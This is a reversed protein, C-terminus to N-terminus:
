EGDRIGPGSSVCGMLEGSEGVSAKRENFKDVWGSTGLGQFM